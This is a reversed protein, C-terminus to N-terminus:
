LRGDVLDKPLLGMVDFIIGEDALLDKLNLSMELFEKHGVALIVANYLKSKSLKKLGEIGFQKKVEIQDAYPDYFDVEAGIDTFHKILDLVKSNRIDGCNEKFTVGLILVKSSYGLKLKKKEMLEKVESFVFHSMSDNIKRGSLIIEPYYGLQEAKFSLYFPDIGICHGGVLGPKFPLFNWKTEAAELVEHTDLGMKSFIKTLENIFAINIDRQTNEIVKAAEAIRISSVKHTGADIILSYLEDVKDLTKQNSGSTIKRITRITHESDGPNIREPSYGCFFDENFKLSSNEELVPVCIEETAGPYVTSEYIIVSDKKIYKAVLKSANILAGFDPTNDENVPTPVTIIFWECSSLDEETNTFNLNKSKLNKKFDIQNTNDINKNLEKIRKSNIDFGIVEFHKALQAALPTGVYGMGLIALKKPLKIM